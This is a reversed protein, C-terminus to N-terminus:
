YAQVDESMSRLVKEPLAPLHRVRAGCADHIANIIATHPSTLPAEGCGSAGYPGLPRPTEPPASRQSAARRPRFSTTPSRSSAPASAFPVTVNAHVDLVAIPM